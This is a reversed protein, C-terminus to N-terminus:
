AGFPVGHDDRDNRRALGVLAVRASGVFGWEAGELVGRISEVDVQM